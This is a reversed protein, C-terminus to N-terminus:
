EVPRPTYRLEAAAWLECDVEVAETIYMHDGGHQVGEDVWHTYYCHESIVM